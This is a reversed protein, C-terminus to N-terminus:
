RHDRLFAPHPTKVLNNNPHQCVYVLKCILLAFMFLELELDLAVKTPQLKGPTDPM